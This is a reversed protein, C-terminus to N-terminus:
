QYSDKVPNLPNALNLFSSLLSQQGWRLRSTIPIAEGRMVVIKNGGMRFPKCIRRGLVAENRECDRTTAERYVLSEDTTLRSGIRVRNVLIPFPCPGQLCTFGPGGRAFPFM